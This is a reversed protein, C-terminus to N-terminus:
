KPRDRLEGVNKANEMNEGKKLPLCFATYSHKGSQQRPSPPILRQIEGCIREFDGLIQQNTFRIVEIGYGELRQTRECDYDKGDNSYHSEGDVEIVLKLTPCYFDVIFYDIPRQRLVTFKFTRLYGYWLRKEASTM